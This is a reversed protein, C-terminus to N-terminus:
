AIEGQSRIGPDLWASSPASSSLWPPCRCASISWRICSPVPAVAFGGGASLSPGAAADSRWLTVRRLSDSRNCLRGPWRCGSRSSPRWRRPILLITPWPLSLPQVIPYIDAFSGLGWGLWPSMRDGQCRALWIQIRDAGDSARVGQRRHHQRCYGARRHRRRRQDGVFVSAGPGAAFAVPRAADADCARRRQGSPQPSAPARPPFLLGGLLLLGGGADDRSLRDPLLSAKRTTRTTATPCTARRRRGAFVLAMAAVLGMGCYCGFSNSSVFTGSMVCRDSDVPLRRGEQPLQRCLLFTDRAAHPHRLGRGARCRRRVDVAAAARPRPRPLGRTGGPFDRRM